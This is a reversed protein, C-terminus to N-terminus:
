RANGIAKYIDELSNAEQENFLIKLICESSPGANNILDGLFGRTIESDTSFLILDGLGNSDVLKLFDETHIRVKIEEQSVEIVKKLGFFEEWQGTNVPERNVYEFNNITLLFKM